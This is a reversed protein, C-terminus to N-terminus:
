KFNSQKIVVKYVGPPLDPATFGGSISTTTVRVLGTEVNTITVSADIVVAGSPDTVTGSITGTIKQGYAPVLLLLLILVNPLFWLNRLKM